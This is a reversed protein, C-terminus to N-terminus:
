PERHFYILTVRRGGAETEVKASVAGAAEGLLLVGAEAAITDLDYLRPRWPTAM